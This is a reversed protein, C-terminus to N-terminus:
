AEQEIRTGARGALAAVVESPQCVIAPKGSARVFEVAAAVKPGMSGPPFQGEAALVELAEPTTRSLLRANDSGFDRYIGAVGTVLLLCDAAMQRALLATALDKDVVAEVGQLGDDGATVPIGGGGAAIVIVGMDLLQGILTTEVIATPRPSPVM